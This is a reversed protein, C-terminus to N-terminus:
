FLDSPSLVEEQLSLSLVCLFGLFSYIGPYKFIQLAYFFDPLQKGSYINERKKEYTTHTHSTESREYGLLFLWAHSIANKKLIKIM